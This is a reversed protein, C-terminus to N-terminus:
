QNVVPVMKEVIGHDKLFDAWQQYAEPYMHLGDYSNSDALDGASNEFPKSIDLYFITDNDALSALLENYQQLRENNVAYNGYAFDATVKLNAQIVIISTPQYEKVLNLIEKFDEFCEEPGSGLGNIGCSLYIKGFHYESLLDELDYSGYGEVYLYDYLLGVNSIGTEAFFVANQLDSNAQLGVTRSDGIFLVDDVYDTDVKGFTRTLIMQVEPESVESSEEESSEEESEERGAMEEGTLEQATMSETDLPEVVVEPRVPGSASEERSEAKAQESGRPEMALVSSGKLIMVLLVASVLVLVPVFVLLFVKETKASNKQQKM